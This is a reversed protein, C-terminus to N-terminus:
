PESFLPLAHIAAEDVPRDPGMALLDYDSTWPAGPHASCRAMSWSEFIRFGRAELLEVCQTRLHRGHVSVLLAAHPGVAPGSARLIAAEEGEVDIKLVDPRPLRLSEVLRPLTRVEAIEDGRGLAYALSDGTGGFRATGDFDSLAAPCVIVNCADNWRVHRRLFRRNRRSPECAVVVGGPGVMRSAALTMFGKHAGVDWVCDGPRVVARLAEIRAEGFSGFGYGRGTSVVSWRMGRNIGRVIPL